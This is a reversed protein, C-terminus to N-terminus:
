VVVEETVSLHDQGKLVLYEYAKKTVLEVKPLDNIRMSNTSQWKGEKDLYNRDLSITKYKVNEGTTKNQGDNTWITASISGAKFKKEPQNGSGSKQDKEM